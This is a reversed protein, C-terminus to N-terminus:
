NIKTVYGNSFIYTNNKYSVVSYKIGDITISSTINFMDDDNFKVEDTRDNFHDFSQFLASHVVAKSTPNTRVQFALWLMGTIVVVIIWDKVLM